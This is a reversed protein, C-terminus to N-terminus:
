DFTRDFVKHFYEGVFPLPAFRGQAANVVGLIMFVFLGIGIIIMALWGIIPIFILIFSFIGFAFGSVMLGLAQKLHFAGIHTKKNYHIILGIIFGLLGFYCIWAATREENSIHYAGDFYFMPRQNNYQNYQGQNYQGQQFQGHRFQQEKNQQEKDNPNNQEM